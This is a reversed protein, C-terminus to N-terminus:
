PELGSLWHMINLLFPANGTAKSHNMGVKIRGEAFVQATFMAAESFFAVRGNGFELIGGQFWDSVDLSPTGPPFKRYESPMWSRVGKKLILLPVFDASAQFASGAFTAVTNISQGTRGSVTLAHEALTGDMSQFLLPEASGPPPGTFAYGNNVQIGFASALGAVAAPDPMHDTIIFLSGGNHVWGVLNQIEEPSFSPPDSKKNPPQADAIVCISGDNQLPHLFKNLSRKVVYGDDSLLRAFPLYTTVATHFNNHAEDVYVVPGEGSSYAPESILYRYNLDVTRPPEIKSATHQGGHLFLVVESLMLFFYLVVWRRSVTRQM